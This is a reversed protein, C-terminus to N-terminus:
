FPIAVDKEGIGLFGGVGIVVAITKGNGDTVLDNVDGITEKAADVAPRGILDTALVEDPKQKALFHVSLDTPPAVAEPAQGPVSAPEAAMPSVDGPAQPGEGALTVTTALAPLLSLMLATATLGLRRKM